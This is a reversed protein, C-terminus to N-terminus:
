GAERASHKMEDGAVGSEKWRKMCLGIVDLTFKLFCDWELEINQLPLAITSGDNEPLMFAEDSILEYNEAVWKQRYSNLTSGTSLEPFRSVMEQWERSAFILRDIEEQPLEREPKKYIPNIVEMGRHAVYHRITELLNMWRQFEEGKILSIFEPAGKEAAKLFDKRRIGIQKHPCGLGFVENIILSLQDLGGWFLLCYHNLYYNIEFAFLQRKLGDRKAAARQLMYFLLKDRTYLLNSARHIFTRIFEWTENRGMGNAISLATMLKEFSPESAPYLTAWGSYWIPLHFSWPVEHGRVFVESWKKVGEGDCLILGLRQRIDERQEHGKVYDPALIVDCDAFRATSLILGLRESNYSLKELESNVIPHLVSRSPLTECGLGGLFKYAEREDDGTQAPLLFDIQLPAKVDKLYVRLTDLERITPKLQLVASPDFLIRLRYRLLGSSSMEPYMRGHVTPTM